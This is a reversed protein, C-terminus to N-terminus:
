YLIVDPAPVSLNTGSDQVPSLIGDLFEVKGELWANFTDGESADSIKRKKNSKLVVPEHGELKLKRKQSKIITRHIKRSFTKLSRPNVNRLHLIAGLEGDYIEALLKMVEIDGSWKKPLLAVNVLDKKIFEGIMAYHLLTQNKKQADVLILNNILQEEIMDDPVLPPLLPDQRRFREKSLDIEGQIEQCTTLPKRIELTM